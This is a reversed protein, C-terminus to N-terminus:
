SLNSHKKAKKNKIKVFCYFFYITLISNLVIGSASLYFDINEEPFGHKIIKSIEFGLLLSGACFLLLYINPYKLFINTM